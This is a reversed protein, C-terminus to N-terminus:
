ESFKAIYLYLLQAQIEIWRRMVDMGLLVESGQKM